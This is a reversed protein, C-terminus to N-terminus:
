GKARLGRQPEATQPEDRLKARIRKPREIRLSMPFRSAEIAETLLSRLTSREDETLDLTMRRGDGGGTTLRQLDTSHLSVLFGLRGARPSERQSTEAAPM